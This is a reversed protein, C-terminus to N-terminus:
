EPQRARALRLYMMAAEFDSDSLDDLITAGEVTAKRKTLVLDDSMAALAMITIGAMECMVRLEERTLGREKRLKMGIASASKYGLRSAIAGQKIGKAILLAKIIPIHKRM